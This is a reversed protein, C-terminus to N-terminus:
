NYQENQIKKEVAYQIDFIINYLLKILFITLFLKLIKFINFTFPLKEDVINIDFKIRCIPCSHTKYIWKMLCRNHFFGNCSCTTYYMSSYLLTQMKYINNNTASKDWCILCQEDNYIINHDNDYIIDNDGYHNFTTFYM